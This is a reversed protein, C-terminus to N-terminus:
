GKTSSSSPSASATSGSCVEANKKCYDTLKETNKKQEDLSTAFLTEGSELNVTVFYLWDGAPPDMVAKLANSGPSGIPTPPLGQHKYTNYKNSSDAVEDATPIGGTRGLGYLVTSDMQLYGKTEANKKTLRNEIVRAVQGYYSSSSVEREVISAETLDKEWNKEDIGLSKLTSVTKSVMSAVVDTADAGEPVDYTSPALWGEVDGDAVDPLGIADADKFAADVESSTFGGVSILRDKVQAKTSGEPITLAHDSKSAPDLLAAVADAASMHNKLSYTGAQISGSHSNANYADTFAGVSAVVDADKRRLDVLLPTAIFVSSFAGVTTGIFLALSLDLLTGPGLVAFGIIIVALVPLNAIVTTNISRVLTQNVALNAADAFSMRRNAFAARTNEKVHDFVVVTDYLSYGLVTLFGILTAPSVEFGTWTYIGVTILMDHALAIMSAVAMKLNRYYLAMLATTIVLFVVLARLAQQSVSAGWSPGIFNSSVKNTEVDFATALARSVQRAEDNSLEETQVRVTDSGLTVARAEAEALRGRTEDLQEEILFRRDIVIRCRDPVCPAPLGTYGEEPERAGGHIM